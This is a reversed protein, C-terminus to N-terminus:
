LYTVEIGADIFMNITAEYNFHPRTGDNRRTVVRKIGKQVIGKACENCPYLTCYLTSGETDAFSNDIANREAHVVYKYKTEKDAYMAPDDFVGRPFGNYGLGLVQRKDNVIVAGVKTSPDKSWTSVQEALELFRKDWLTNM